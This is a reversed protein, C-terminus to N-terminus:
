LLFRFIDRRTALIGLPIAIITALLIPYVVLVSLHEFSLAWFQDSRQLYTMWISHLTVDM